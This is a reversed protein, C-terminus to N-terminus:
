SLHTKKLCFLKIYLLLSQFPKSEMLTGFAKSQDWGNWEHQIHDTYSGEVLASNPQDMKWSIAVERLDRHKGPFM